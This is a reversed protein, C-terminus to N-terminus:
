GKLKGKKILRNAEKELTEEVEKRKNKTLSGVIVSTLEGLAITAINSALIYMGFSASTTLTFVVMIIPMVIKMVKMTSGMETSASKAIANAKKNKLKNHLEAIYQSLFTILGALVPLLYYGNNPRPTNNSILGAIKDYSSADIKSVYEVYDTNQSISVLNAYTPFARATSDAVWINQIWLWSSRSKNENWTKVASKSAVDTAHEIYAKKSNYEAQKLAEDTMANYSKFWNNVDEVTKFDDDSKFDIFAQNYNQTYTAEIQEYQNIAEYASVKRLDNYFTPIEAYTDQISCNGDM